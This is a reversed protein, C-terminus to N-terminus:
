RAWPSTGAARTVGGTRTAAAGQGAGAPKGGTRQQGGPGGTKQQGAAAGGANAGGATATAASRPIPLPANKISEFVRNANEANRIFFGAFRRNTTTEAVQVM